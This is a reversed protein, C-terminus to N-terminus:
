VQAFRHVTFLQKGARVTCVGTITYAPDVLNAYHHPSARFAGWVSDVTPGMGVNEGWRRLGPHGATVESGLAPDHSLSGVAALKEAWACSSMSLTGDVRLPHLGVSAHLQDIRNYFDKSAAVDDNCGVVVGLGLPIVLLAAIRRAWRARFSQTADDPRELPGSATTPLLRQDM